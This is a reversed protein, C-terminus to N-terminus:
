PTYAIHEVTVADLWCRNAISGKTPAMQHDVVFFLYQHTIEECHFGNEKLSVIHEEENLQTRALNMKSTDSSVGILNPYSLLGALRNPLKGLSFLEQTEQDM